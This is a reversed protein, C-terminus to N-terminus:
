YGMVQLCEVGTTGPLPVALVPYKADKFKQQITQIRPTTAVVYMDEHIDGGPPPAPVNVPEPTLLLVHVEAGTEAVFAEFADAAGDTRGTVVWYTVIPKPSTPTPPSLALDLARIFAGRVIRGADIGLSTPFFCVNPANGFFEDKSHRRDVSNRIVVEDKGVSTKKEAIVHLDDGSTLWNRLEELRQRFEAASESARRSLRTDSRGCFGGKVVNTLFGPM